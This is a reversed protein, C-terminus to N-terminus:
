LMVSSIFAIVIAAAVQRLSKQEWTALVHLFVGAVLHVFFFIYCYQEILDHYFKLQNEVYIIDYFHYIFFVGLLTSPISFLISKGESKFQFYSVAYLFLLIAYGIIFLKESALVTSFKTFDERLLLYLHRGFQLLYFLIAFTVVGILSGNGYLNSRVLPLLIAFIVIALFASGAIIWLSITWYVGNDNFSFALRFGNIVYPRKEQMIQINNPREVEFVFTRNPLASQTIKDVVGVKRIPEGDIEKLRDGVRIDNVQEIAKYSLLPHVSEAFIGAEREEWTIWDNGEFVAEVQDGQHLLSIVQKNKFFTYGMLLLALYFVGLVAFWVWKKKTM